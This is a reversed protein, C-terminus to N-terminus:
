HIISQALVNSSVIVSHEKELNTDQVEHKTGVVKSYPMSGNMGVMGVRYYKYSYTTIDYQYSQSLASNGKSPLTAIVSFSLSDNSAEIRYHRVNSERPIAFNLVRRNHMNDLAVNSFAQQASADAISIVLLLFFTTLTKM